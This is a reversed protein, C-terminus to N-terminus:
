SYRKKPNKKTQKFYKFNIEFFFFLLVLVIYVLFFLFSKKKMKTFFFFFTPFYCHFFPNLFASIIITIIIFLFSEWLTSSCKGLYNTKCYQDKVHKYYWKVHLNDFIKTKFIFFYFFSEMLVFENIIRKALKQM